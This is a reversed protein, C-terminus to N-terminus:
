DDAPDDNDLDARWLAEDFPTHGPNRGFRITGNGGVRYRHGNPSTWHFVGPRPQQLQWGGHTKGRHAKRSLAGLNDPRTQNPQGPVYPRTHDLDQHRAPRSSFPFIEVQDRLLVQRRIRDPIEYSDVGARAYPRVVPTLRVRTHGLLHKLMAAPLAGVGEVRAVGHGTLLTEEAVHVYVTARPLLRPDDSHIGTQARVADDSDSSGAGLLLQARAPTALVGIAKARRAEKSDDDGRDGLIDAIRDVAADFFIADATDVRAALFAVNPDDTAHKRVYREARAKEALATVQDPAITAILGRVLRMVRPWPLTALKGALSSDLENAEACTLEYRAVEVSLQAARYLPVVGKTVQFWLHPHRAQLNVVDRILWTAAAVSLGKLAAVELPLFEDVLATGDAGIRVPRTGIVEFEDAASWQSEAALEAIAQAEAIEAARRAEVAARLRGSAGVV